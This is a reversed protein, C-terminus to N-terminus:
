ILAEVMDDTYQRAALAQDLHKCQQRYSFGRCSCSWRGSEHLRVRYLAGKSGIMWAVVIWPKEPASLFERLRM